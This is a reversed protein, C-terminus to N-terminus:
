DGYTTYTISTNAESYTVSNGNVKVTGVEVLEDASDPDLNSSSTQAYIRYEWFGNEALRVEGNLLDETGGEGVEVISFENYRATYSSTDAALFNVTDGAPPIFSFLYKPNSVTTKETLTVVVTNTAGQTIQIM